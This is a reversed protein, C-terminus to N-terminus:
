LFQGLHFRLKFDLFVNNLHNNNPGPLIGAEVIWGLGVKKMIYSEYGIAAGFPFFKANTNIDYQTYLDLGVINPFPELVDDLKQGFGLLGHAYLRSYKQSSKKGFLDTSVKYRLTKVKSMGFRFISQTFYSSIAENKNKSELEVLLGDPDVASIMADGFNYYTVGTSFGIEAGIRRSINAPILTMTKNSGKQRLALKQNESSVKSNFYYTMNIGIDRSKEAIYISETIPNGNILGDTIREAFHLRSHLNASFKPSMITADFGIAVATLNRTNLSVDYTLGAGWWTYSPKDLLMEYRVNQTSDQAHSSLATLMLVLYTFERM